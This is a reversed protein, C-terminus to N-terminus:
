RADGGKAAWTLRPPEPLPDGLPVASEGHRDVRVITDGDAVLAELAGFDDAERVLSVGTRGTALRVRWGAGRLRAAAAFVESPMRGGLVADLPELQPTRGQEALAIMVRELGLAFGAAP